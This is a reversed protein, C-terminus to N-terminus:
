KNGNNDEHWDVLKVDNTKSSSMINYWLDKWNDETEIIVVYKYM